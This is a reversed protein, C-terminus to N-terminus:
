ALLAAVTATAQRAASAPAHGRSRAVIYAAAFADGAGTHDASGGIPRAPIHTAQGRTMVLCGRAGLTVIVEPVHLEGLAREDVSGFLALAEEEALKLATVQRLLDHDFDADLELPGLHPRRVLGQGDLLVHRDRLVALAEATFDSRLVPAVQLWHADEAARVVEAPSWPEGVALVTMRRAGEEHDIAFSATEGGCTAVISLGNPALAHVLADRDAESFKVGVHARVGLYHLARGGYWPAGGIRPEGGDIVDRSLHGIIAVPPM